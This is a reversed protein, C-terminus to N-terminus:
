EFEVPLRQATSPFEFRTFDLCFRLQLRRMLQLVLRGQGSRSYQKSSSITTFPIPRYNSVSGAFGTRLVPTIVANIWGDPVAGISLLQSFVLAVSFARLGIKKFVAPLNDPCSLSNQATVLKCYM